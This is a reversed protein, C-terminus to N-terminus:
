VNTSPPFVHHARDHLAVTFGLKGLESTIRGRTWAGREPAPIADLFARQLAKLPVPEALPNSALYSALM